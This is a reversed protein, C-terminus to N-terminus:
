AAAGLGLYEPKSSHLQHSLAACRDCNRYNASSSTLGEASYGKYFRHLGHPGLGSCAIGTTISMMM